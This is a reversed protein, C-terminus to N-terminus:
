NLLFSFPRFVICPKVNYVNSVLSIRSIPGIGFFRCEYPAFRLSHRTTSPFRRQAPWMRRHPVVSFWPVDRIARRVRRHGTRREGNASSLLYMVM